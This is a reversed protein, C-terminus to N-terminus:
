LTDPRALFFIVGLTQYYEALYMPLGWSKEANLRTTKIDAMETSELRMAPGWVMNIMKTDVKSCGNYCSDQM